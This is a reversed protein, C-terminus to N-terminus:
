SIILKSGNVQANNIVMTDGTVTVGNGFIIKDDAVAASVGLDLLDARCYERLEGKSNNEIITQYNRGRAPQKLNIQGSVFIEYNQLLKGSVSAEANINISTCDTNIKVNRSYSPIKCNSCFDGFHIMRASCQLKNNNCGNGFVTNSIDLNYSSRVDGSFIWNDNCGLLNNNCSFDFKNNFSNTALKNGVCNHGFTNSICGMHLDNSNCDRGFTNSNCQQSLTNYSSGNGFVNLFCGEGLNNNKCDLGFTNSYCGNGLNINTNEGKCGSGFKNNHCNNGFAINECKEAIENNYCGNGFAINYCDHGITNCHCPSTATTNKFTIKPIGLANVASNADLRIKNDYCYKGYKVSGDYHTGNVYYDFTYFDNYKINKFDYSAENGFEDKLYYIV